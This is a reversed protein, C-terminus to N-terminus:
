EPRRVDKRRGASKCIAALGLTIGLGLIFYSAVYSKAAPEEANAQALCTRVPGTALIMTFLFRNLVQMM